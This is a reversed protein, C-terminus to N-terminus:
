GGDAKCGACIVEISRGAAIHYPSSGYNSEPVHANITHEQQLQRLHEVARAVGPLLEAQDAAGSLHELRASAEMITARPRDDVVAWLDETRTVSLAADSRLRTVALTRGLARYAATSTESWHLEFPGAARRRTARRVLRDRVWYAAAGVGAVLFYGVGICAGFEGYEPEDHFLHSERM